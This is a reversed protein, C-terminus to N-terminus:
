SEVIPAQDIWALVRGWRAIFQRVDDLSFEADCECCKCADDATLDTIILAISVEAEGCKPCPLFGFGRGTAPPTPAPTTPQTTTAPPARFVRKLTDDIRQNTDSM